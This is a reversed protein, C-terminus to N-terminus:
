RTSWTSRLPRGRRRRRRVDQVITRPVSIGLDDCIEAFTAKDSIRDLLHESLFPVVYYQELQARHQVVVRVLWDSNAMLLLRKDPM